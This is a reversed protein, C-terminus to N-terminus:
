PSTLAMPTPVLAQPAPAPDEDEDIVPLYLLFTTGQGVASRVTLFGGSQHVFGYVGALGLGTGRGEGKTTFFPEFIHARVEPTMGLGTDRVAIEVWHGVRLEPQTEVDGATFIRPCATVHLEGGDPMADRANVALNLIATEFGSRDLRCRPLDDGVDLLLRIRGSLASTILSVLGQLLAGVAIDRPELPRRRAFMMLRSVVDAGRTGAALASAIKRQFPSDAPLEDAIGELKAMIIALVNNFDHAVGGTLQGIAELKQSQRLSAEAQALRAEARRQRTVDKAIVLRAPKRNFRISGSTIANDIITGDKTVQPWVGRDRMDIQTDTSTVLQKLRAQDDLPHLDFIRRQRFEESSYGYAARAAENAEIIRFTERDHVWMANPNKEFLYRFNEESQQLRQTMVTVIAMLLVVAAAATVISAFTGSPLGTLRRLPDSVPFCFMSEMGTYHMVTVALGLIVAGGASRTIRGADSGAAGFRVKLAVIAFVAAFVISAAVMTLDYRVLAEVQLAAMGTYHMTGIGVGMLTGGLVLRRMSVDPRAVVHLATGAAVMAPVVSVVTVAAGYSVPVPLVHALMAVFHMCWIGGGMAVAGGTLWRMRLTSDRLEIIRDAFQLFTFSAVVAMVCSLVVLGRDYTDPLAQALDRGIVFFTALDM